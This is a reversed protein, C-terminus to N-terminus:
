HTCEKYIVASDLWLKWKKDEKKKDDKKTSSSSAGSSDKKALQGM